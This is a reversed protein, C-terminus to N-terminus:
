SLEKIKAEIARLDAITAEQGPLALGDDLAKQALKAFARRSRADAAKQAAKARVTTGADQEATKLTVRAQVAAVAEPLAPHAELAAEGLSQLLADRQEIASSLERARKGSVTGLFGSVTKWLRGGLTASAGAAASGGARPFAGAALLGLTSLISLYLGVGRATAYSPAFLFKLVLLLLALGATTSAAIREARSFPESARTLLTLALPVLALLFPLWGPGQIGLVSNGNSAIRWPLLFALAALAAAAIVYKRQTHIAPPIRAIVGDVARLAPLLKSMLSPGPAASPTAAAPATPASNPRIEIAEGSVQFLADGIKLRDGPRLTRPQSLPEDNVAIAPGSQQVLAPGPLEDFPVPLQTTSGLPDPAAEAQRLKAQADLLTQIQEPTLTGMEVLIEGLRQPTKESEFAPGEKQAELAFEVESPSAFGNQVALAGFQLDPHTTM